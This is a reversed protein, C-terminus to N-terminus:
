PPTVSLPAVPWDRVAIAAWTKSLGQERIFDKSDWYYM